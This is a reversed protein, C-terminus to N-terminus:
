KAVYSDAMERLKNKAVKDLTARPFDDVLYVAKPCKFDALREKCLAIIRDGLDDPANPGPVVFAVAVMSLFEHDQGVIAVDAVGPVMRCVDEVEKASVNEGGVKLADKDRDKFFFFGDESVIVRDGTKFWGDATFAKDNAEENDFYELFLQIGRTGRVYLEGNEGPACIRPPEAETDVVLFEYGPTPRGMTGQPWFQDFQNRTAHIVTETMGWSSTIRVGGMMKEIQPSILGFAGVKLTNPPIDGSMAVKMVFPMMSFHTVDHKTVIEWFRSASWKPTLVISGGVGLTTWTSWSQANVHFYPLYIMYRDNTTMKINDPGMRSSWIVNAHTHVVAKPRSTTGSTFMIGVPLMPEAPRAPLTSGDGSLEAFPVLAASAALEAETAPEGSNDETVALFKLQPANAAVIAAYQPQTIGAVCQTHAAFYEIEPGASKTNTTVGVAGLLACAFWSIVQEPSNDAHLLVKDGKAVGRDALGAALDKAAAVFEAYTWTRTNADKPEWILFPHEPKNTAWHNLLWPVDQGTMQFTDVASIPFSTETM